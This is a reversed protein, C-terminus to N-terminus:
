FIYRAKDLAGIKREILRYDSVFTNFGFTNVNILVRLLSYACAAAHIVIELEETYM